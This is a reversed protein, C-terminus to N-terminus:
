LHPPLGVYEICTPHRTAAEPLEVSGIADNRICNTNIFMTKHAGHMSQLHIDDLTSSSWLTAKHMNVYTRKCLASLLM